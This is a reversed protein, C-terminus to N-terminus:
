NSSPMYCCPGLPGHSYHRGSIAVDMAVDGARNHQQNAREAGVEARDTGRNALRQQEKPGQSCNRQPLKRQSRSAQSGNENEHGHFSGDSQATGIM